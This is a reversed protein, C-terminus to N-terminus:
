VDADSARVKLIGISQNRTSRGSGEDATRHALPRQLVHSQAQRGLRRNAGHPKEVVQDNRGICDPVPKLLECSIQSQQRPSREQQLEAFILVGDERHVVDIRRRRESNFVADRYGHEVNALLGAVAGPELADAERVLRIVHRFHFTHKAALDVRSRRPATDREWALRPLHGKGSLIRNNVTHEFPMGFGDVRLCERHVTQSGIDAADDRRTHRVSLNINRSDGPVESDRRPRQL